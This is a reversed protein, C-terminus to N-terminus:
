YYNDFEPKEEWLTDKIRERARQEKRKGRERLQDHRIGAGGQTHNKQSLMAAAAM